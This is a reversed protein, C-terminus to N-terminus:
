QAGQALMLMLPSIHLLTVHLFVRKYFHIL